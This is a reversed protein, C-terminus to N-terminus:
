HIFAETESEMPVLCHAILVTINDPGGAANAADILAQAAAEPPGHLHNTLIAEIDADRLADSLGDSCVL